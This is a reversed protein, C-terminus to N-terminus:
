ERGCRWLWSGQWHGAGSDLESLVYPLPQPRIAALRTLAAELQHEDGLLGAAPLGLPAPSLLWWREGGPRRDREGPWSPWITAHGGAPLLRDIRAYVPHHAAFFTRRSAEYVGETRVPDAAHGWCHEVGAGPVLALRAGLRRARRLWDTEEFYLFYSEDWPGVRAALDASFALLAGSLNPAEVPVTAQWARRNTALEWEIRRRWVTGSYSALKRRLQEGPTQPDAAPFKFGALELQPGVVDWGADLAALLQALAPPALEVDPNALLIKAGRALSLGANVGAAFGRNAQVVLRDPALPALRRAEDEDESHDIIILELGAGVRAAAERLSAVARPCWAASHFTVM